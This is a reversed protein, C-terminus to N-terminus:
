VVVTSNSASRETVSNETCQGDRCYNCFGSCDSDANCGVGCCSGQPCSSSKTFDPRSSVLTANAVHKFHEHHHEVATVKGNKVTLSVVGDYHDSCGSCVEWWDCDSHAHKTFAEDCMSESALAYCTKRINCHEWAAMVVNGKEVEALFAKAAGSHDHNEFTDDVKLGLNDATPQITHLTRQPTSGSYHGAFLKTPKNYESGPFITAIFKARRKGIDSLDGIHNKEGHRIIYISADKSGGEAAVVGFALALISKQMM